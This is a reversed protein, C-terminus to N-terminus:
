KGGLYARGEDTLIRGNISREVFNLKMLFPEVFDQITDAEEHMRTAIIELGLPTTARSLLQLYRRDLPRLGLHDTHLKETIVKAAFEATLPQHYVDAYDRLRKLFNNALRPTGRSRKAIVDAVDWGIQMKLREASVLTISSLEDFTYYELQFQLGFRDIFPQELKGIDTTAGIFTLPNLDIVVNLNLSSQLKNDELVPYLVEQVPKRVRHIEDIFLQTLKPLRLLLDTVERPSTLSPGIITKSRWGMERAIILALTTKGLGPPGNLLVHDLPQNRQRAGQISTWLTEKIQEQGVYEDLTQPRLNEAAKPLKIM